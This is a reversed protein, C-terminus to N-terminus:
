GGHKNAFTTQKHVENTGKELCVGEGRLRRTDGVQFLVLHLWGAFLWFLYEINGFKNKM